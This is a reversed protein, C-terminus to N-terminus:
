VLLPPVGWGLVSMPGVQACTRNDAVPALLNFVELHENDENYIFAKTQRLM